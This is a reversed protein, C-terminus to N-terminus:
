RIWASTVDIRSRAAMAPSAGSARREQTQEVLYASWRERTKGCSQWAQMARFVERAGGAGGAGVALAATLTAAAPSGGVGSCIAAHVSGGRPGPNALAVALVELAFARPPTPAEGRFLLYLMDVWRASGLMGGYVDYGHCYAARCTFADNPEPEEFWIDSQVYPDKGHIGRLVLEVYRAYGAWLVEAGGRVLGRQQVRLRSAESGITRSRPPM